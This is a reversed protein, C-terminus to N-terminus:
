NSLITKNKGSNKGQYLNEDAKTFLENYNNKFKGMYGGITISLKGNINKFNYDNVEKRIDELFEFALTSNDFNGIILFEEGGWRSVIVKDKEHKKAKSILILALTKLIIDGVSHGYTDNISKFNDIDCIAVLILEDNKKPLVVEELYKRNYLGTLFDKYSIEKLDNIKKSPISTVLLGYAILFTILIFMNIPYLILYANHYSALEFYKASFVLQSGDFYYGLFILTVLVLTSILCTSIKFFIFQVLILCCLLLDFGSRIGTFYIGALQHILVEFYAITYFVKAYNHKYFVSLCIYVTTSFINFVFMEFVGLFYFVIMFSFHLFSALILVLYSYDELHSIRNLIKNIQTKFM